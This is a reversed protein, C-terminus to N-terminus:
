CTGIIDRVTLRCVGNKCCDQCKWLQNPLAAGGPRVDGPQCCYWYWGAVYGEDTPCLAGPTDRKGDVGCATCPSPTCCECQNCLTTGGCSVGGCKTTTGCSCVTAEAPQPLGAWLIGGAILSRGFRALVSRRSTALALERLYHTVDLM